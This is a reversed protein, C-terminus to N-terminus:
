DHTAMIIRNGWKYPTFGDYKVPSIESNVIKKDIAAYNPIKERREPLKIEGFLKSEGQCMEKPSLKRCNTIIFLCVAINRQVRYTSLQYVDVTDTIRFTESLFIYKIIRRNPPAM